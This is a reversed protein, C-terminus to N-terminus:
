EICHWSTGPREPHRRLPPLVSACSPLAQSCRQAFRCGPAMDAPAPVQGGIENLREGGAASDLEAPLCDLLARTYPHHPHVLVDPCEGTEVVDGAYMVAIRNCFNGVLALNHSILLIAVGTEQQLRDLLDIIQAQVTVDLATTPEDAILLRPRCAVAMAIMVRQRMGGSFQHPYRAYSEAPQRIGVLDLLEVAKRRADRVSLERHELLVEAIQEGVRMVPNLATLPEQFIMSIEKGRVHRMARADLRLLDNGMFRIEGSEVTVAESLLGMIALATLSKGSGSEGVLGLREGPQLALELDRVVAGRRGMPGVSLCLNNVQLLPEM